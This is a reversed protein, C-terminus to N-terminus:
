NTAGAVKLTITQQDSQAIADSAAKLAPYADPPVLLSHEGFVFKREFVLQTKNVIKAKVEYRGLAGLPIPAPIQPAELEYGPPLDITINDEDIWPSHIYVPYKRDKLPYMATAGQEFFSPAFFLRKGTRQAYSPVRVHCRYILPKDSETVNELTIASVEATSGHRKLVNKIAEERQADSRHQSAQKWQTGLHGSYQMLVDGELTGDESLRFHGERHAVSKAPPSIPTTVFVPTKPDSILADVGEHRWILMDRPLGPTTPDYFHWNGDLNIAIERETLFYPEAFNRNFFMVDRRPVAAIRSEYGIAASLAGFM